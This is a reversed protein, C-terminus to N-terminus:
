RQFMKFALPSKYTLLHAHQPRLFSYAAAYLPVIQNSIQFGGLTTRLTGFLAGSGIKRSGNLLYRVVIQDISRIIANGRARFDLAFRLVIRKEWPTCSQLLADLDLDSAWQSLSATPICHPLSTSSIKLPLEFQVPRLAVQAHSRNSHKM